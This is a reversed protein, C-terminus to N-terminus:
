WPLKDIKILNKLLQNPQIYYEALWNAQKFTMEPPKETMVSAAKHLLFRPLLPKITKVVKNVGGKKRLMVNLRDWKGKYVFSENRSVKSSLVISSDVGIFDFCDKVVREPQAIFDEFFVFKFQEFSFHSLYLEIQGAYHGTRLYYTSGQIAQNFPRPELGARVQHLYASYARKVPNRMIYIFKADPSTEYIREAIGSYASKAGVDKAFYKPLTACSYSTSADILCKTHDAFVNGYWVLGKNWHQTFYDPEKPTALCIDPHQELYSALQTTGAKQAGLLFVKPQFEEM